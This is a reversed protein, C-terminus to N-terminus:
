TVVLRAALALFVTGAIRNLLKDVQRRRLLFASAKGAVLAILADIVFGVVVFLLGLVLLQVGTGGRERDVFQPLFALYFLVIKPNLLNTVTARWLVTRLPVRPRDGVVPPKGSDIWSRIGIYVLYAAGAWKIVDFLLPAAAMLTALGLTVALTHVLMGVAMGASAVVGAMPGQSIAHALVYIMDPGPTLCIVVIAVVFLALVGPDIPM